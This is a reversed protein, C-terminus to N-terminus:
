FMWCLYVYLSRNSLKHKNANSNWFWPFPHTMLTDYFLKVIFLWSLCPPPTGTDQFYRHNICSTYV